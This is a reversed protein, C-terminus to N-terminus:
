TVKEIYVRYVTDKDFRGYESLGSIYGLRDSKTENDFDDYAKNIANKVDEMSIVNANQFDVTQFSEIDNILTKRTM